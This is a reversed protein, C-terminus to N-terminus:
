DQIGKDQGKGDCERSDNGSRKKGHDLAKAKDRCTLSCYKRKTSQPTTFEIGCLLCTWENRKPYRVAKPKTIRLEKLRKKVLVVSVGNEEAIKERTKGQVVYDEYLEQYSPDYKRISKCWLRFHEKAEDCWPKSIGKSSGGKYESINFLMGGDVFRRGWKMIYEHELEYAMKETINEHIRQIIPRNGSEMLSKIKHYLFPNNTAFPDKWMSPKLHSVDRHDHGKGVYFPEDTIPDILLYVFAKGSDEINMKLTEM